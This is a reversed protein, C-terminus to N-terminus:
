WVGFAEAETSCDSVICERGRWVRLGAWGRGDVIIGLLIREQGRRAPSLAASRAGPSTRGGRDGEGGLPSPDLTLHGGNGMEAKQKGLKLKGGKGMGWALLVFFEM